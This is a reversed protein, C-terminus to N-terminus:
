APDENRRLDDFLGTDEIDDYMTWEPDPLNYNGFGELGADFAKDLTAFPSAAQNNGDTSPTSGSSTDDNGESVVFPNDEDATVTNGNDTSVLM